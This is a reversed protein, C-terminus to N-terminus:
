PVQNLVVANRFAVRKYYLLRANLDQIESAALQQQERRSNLDEIRADIDRTRQEISQLLLELDLDTPTKEMATESTQADKQQADQRRWNTVWATSLLTAAVLFSAVMTLRLSKRSKDHAQRQIALASYRSDVHKGEGWFELERILEEDSISSPTHESQRSENM